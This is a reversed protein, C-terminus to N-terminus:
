QRAEPKNASGTGPRPGSPPTSASPNADQTTDEPADPNQTANASPTADQTAGASPSVSPPASASAESNETGALSDSLSAVVKRAEALSGRTIPIELREQAVPTLDSIRIDTREVAHSLGLPGVRQPIGQFIAVKGADAAVYYQTQSWRYGAFVGVAALALIGFLVGLKATRRSKPEDYVIEHEPANGRAPATLLAAKAAASTGGRTPRSYDTAASGVVIPKQPALGDALDAEEVVDALVVTVNDAGGAALALAILAEGCADLDKHEILAQEITEASVCGCLGDSCLLWRDGPVAERVSEDLDVEGPFDGLARMIVNRKPHVEAEEPTIEGKDVLYQVLTHDHTVQTLHGDRLLYARSDGIHVMALKNDSRLIAVCTTGLGELKSDEKARQLLDYHADDIARRLLPLLDDAQHVDEDIRALHAVTVSSAVDGAAAGGMGDALVLLNQSAYGGDQNTARVLGVDSFAAYRIQVSM